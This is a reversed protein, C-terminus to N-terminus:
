KNLYLKYKVRTTLKRYRDVLNSITCIKSLLFHKNVLSLVILAILFAITDWCYQQMHFMTSRQPRFVEFSHITVVHYAGRGWMYDLTIPSTTQQWFLFSIAPHQSMSLYRYTTKDKKKKVTMKDVLRFLVGYIPM